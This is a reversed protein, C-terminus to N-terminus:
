RNGEYIHRTIEGVEAEKIFQLIVSLVERPTETGVDVLLRNKIKSKFYAREFMEKEKRIDDEGKSLSNGDDRKALISPDNVLVIMFLNQALAEDYRDEIEFIYDGDYKRYLPAYVSEGLHSRNFILNRTKGLNEEMMRFMDDYLRKSFDITDEQTDFPIKNYHFVQFTEEKFAKQILGIQTDKGCRDLGEVIIFKQM